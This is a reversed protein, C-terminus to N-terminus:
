DRFRGAWVGAACRSDGEIRGEIRGKIRGEERGKNERLLLQPEMIEMLAQCMDGDGPQRNGSLGKWHPYCSKFRIQLIM